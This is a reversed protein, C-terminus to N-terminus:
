DKILSKIKAWHGRPPKSINYSKCWKEVAKDSVNYEKAIQITPKEWILKELQDRTPRETKRAGAHSCGYSCYKYDHLTERTFTNKCGTCTFIYTKKMKTIKKNILKKKYKKKKVPKCNKCYKHTSSLITFKENCLVCNKENDWEIPKINTSKKNLQSILEAIKEKNFILFYKIEMVDWGQNIFDERRKLYYPKLNNTGSEYHQNGNVEIILNFQPLVIDPSFFRDPVLNPLEEQFFINEERLRQKLLECPISKNYKHNKWPHKDPNEKLFKKRKESFSARTEATFIAKSTFHTTDLKLNKIKEACVKRASSSSTKYGFKKLVDSYSNSTLVAERLKEEQFIYKTRM